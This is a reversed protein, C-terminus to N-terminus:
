DFLSGQGQDDDLLLDPMENWERGDLERNETKRVGGWQKFFFAVGQKQCQDRISRAWDPDMPRAGPGSEGGCIVWHIGSLDGLDVPDLLPEVSLFRVAAPTDKLFHIRGEARKQDEVSTGIWLNPLDGWFGQTVFPQMRHGRKTLVQFTHREESKIVRFVDEIFWTPVDKNFLDSMSCVFITRPKRWRKPRDMESEHWRVTSFPQAYKAQGMEALRAHMKEAYCNKCGPSVKKCGTVPNWTEETWQIKSPM